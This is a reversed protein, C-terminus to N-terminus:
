IYLSSDKASVESGSDSLQRTRDAFEQMTSRIKEGDVVLPEVDITLDKIRNIVKILEAAGIPDPFQSTTSVLLAYGDISERIMVENLIAGSLGGIYGTQPKHLKFSDMKNRTDPEAVLYVEPPDVNDPFGDLCIIEKAGAEQTAWDLVANALYYYAQPPAPSEGILIAIDKKGTPDGYIRYPYALIGDLFVSLPPILPSRLYGVVELELYRAIYKSAISGVLGHGPFGVFITKGSINKQCVCTALQSQDQATTVISMM